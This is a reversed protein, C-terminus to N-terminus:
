AETPPIVTDVKNKVAHKWEVALGNMEYMCLSIGNNRGGGGSPIASINDAMSQFTERADTLIGKGTIASALIEKGESVSQFVEKIVLADVLKGATINNNVADSTDLIEYTGAPGPNGTDGKEGHLSELWEPETGSFGNRVAITYASEGGDGPRGRLSELWEPESGSFGNKVATEYASEGSEGKEGPQGKVNGLLIRAM